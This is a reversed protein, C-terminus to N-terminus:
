KAGKLAAKANVMGEIESTRAEKRADFHAILFDCQKHLEALTNQNNKLDANESTNGANQDQLKTEEDVKKDSAGQSAATEEEITTNGDAVVKEYDKQATKEDHETTNLELELEGVLKDLLALITNSAGSKKKAFEMEPQGDAVVKQVHVRIQALSPPGGNIWEVPGGFPSRYGAVPERFAEAQSMDVDNGNADVAIKEVHQDKNYFSNMKNKAKKLLLIAQNQMNKNTEYDANEQKRQATAEAISQNTDAVAKDSAAISKKLEAIQNEHLAIANEHGEISRNNGRIAKETAAINSNCSELSEEDHVQEKKLTVVMDDVMKIVKAFSVSKSRLKSLVTNAMLAVVANNSNERLNKVMNEARKVLNKQSSRQLFAAGGSKKGLTGQFTTLADDDNLVKITEGIAEVEEGRSTVKHDFEAQKDACTQKMNAMMEKNDALEKASDEAINKQEVAEVKKEGLTQQKEEIGRTNNAISEELGASLESHAKQSAKEAKELDAISAAMEDGMQALIGVIEDTSGTAGTELFAMVTETQESDINSVELIHKLSSVASNTQLFAQGKGKRLAAEASKVSKLNQSADAHEKAYKEAEAKRDNNAAALEEKNSKRESKHNAVESSLQEVAAAASEAAASSSDIKSSLEGQRTAQDKGGTKCWCTFKAMAKEEARGEEEIEKQLNQLLGVVRRIPNPGQAAHAATAMSTLAIASRM